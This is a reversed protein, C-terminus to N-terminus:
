PNLTVRGNGNVMEKGDTRIEDGFFFFDGWRTATEGIIKKKLAYTEDREKTNMEDAANKM